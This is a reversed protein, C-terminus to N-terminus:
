DQRDLFCRKQIGSGFYALIEAGVTKKVHRQSQVAREVTFITKKLTQVRRGIQDNKDIGIIKLLGDGGFRAPIRYKQRSRIIGIEYREMVDDGAQIFPTRKQGPLLIQRQFDARFAGIPKKEFM